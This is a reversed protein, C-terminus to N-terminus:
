FLITRRRSVGAAEFSRESVSGRETKGEEVKGRGVRWVDRSGSQESHSSATCLRFEPVCCVRLRRLKVRPVGTRRREEKRRKSQITAESRAAASSSLPVM